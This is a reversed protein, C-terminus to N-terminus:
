IELEMLVHQFPKWLNLFGISMKEARTRLPNVESIIHPCLPLPYSNPLFKNISSVCQMKIQNMYSNVNDGHHCCIIPIVYCFNSCQEWPILMMHPCHVTIM